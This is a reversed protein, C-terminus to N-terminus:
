NRNLRPFRLFQQVSSIRTPQLDRGNREPCIKMHYRTAESAGRSTRHSCYSCIYLNRRQKELSQSLSAEENKMVTDQDENLPSFSVFKRLSPVKIIDLNRGNRQSCNEMHVRTDHASGSQTRKKCYPCIYFKVHLNKSEILEIMAQEHEELTMKSCTSASLLPFALFQEVSPIRIPELKDKRREPCIEM